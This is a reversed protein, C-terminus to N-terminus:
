FDFLSASILYPKRKMFSKNKRDIRVTITLTPSKM